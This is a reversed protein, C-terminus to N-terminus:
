CFDKGLAISTVLIVCDKQLFNVSFTGTFQSISENKKCVNEISLQLKKQPFQGLYNKCLSNLIGAIKIEFM